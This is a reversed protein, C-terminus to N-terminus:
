TNICKGMTVSLSVFHVGLPIELLASCTEGLGSFPSGGEEGKGAVGKRCKGKDRGGNGRKDGAGEARMSGRFGRM